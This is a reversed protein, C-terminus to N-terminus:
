WAIKKFVYPLVGGDFYYQMEMRNVIRAVVSFTLESTSSMARVTLNAGPKLGKLGEISYEEDGKLGLSKAGKGGAFELPLIGMAVLNSRHIREFSEAIVARVGLLRPAKAAWDRSSGAGYVKGAIVILPIRKKIYQIAADYIPMIEGTPLFTTYGGERGKALLNTLRINSFGGRVMVEHNGRRAGYTSFHIMDVGRQQLYLAAPSDVSITGAPSIHDTTVKDELYALVRAGRVDELKGGEPNEFWPPERIYTSSDDWTYTEGPSAPLSNWKEDGVLADAYRREYLKPSISKEVTQKIEKLSPWIDKLYFDRGDPGKGLPQNYFDFDMRGALAYAVVLMPSTLFSGKALPHIRGDFNRNGSLVAVVYSDKEKIEREIEPALPGSNGICNHVAITGAIFAHLENVSLDYVLRRGAPHRDVVQLSFTPLTTSEKEACYRKIRETGAGSRLPAFWGRVGLEKFLKVPSPFDCSDRHLPQFRRDTARPLRSFRDHGELLAYHPSVVPPMSGEAGHNLLSVAVLQRAQSFSLMPQDQNLEELRAAMWLRQEQIGEVLRWYVAAASARMTKDVCYRFGVREIFSLGNPLNLRVEIRPIGDRAAAYSSGRRRTPYEYVRAGETEVGCRTLLRILEHLLTRSQEIHAPITSQSYAPPELTSDDERKGWRHLIPAHGDAGFLGGLFERVVSVPCNEQCVFSPLTPPQEIREGVKVGPLATIAKTLAMPLVISWRREDYRNACPRLGTVLEIDSLVIERDVAQGVSMRGQGSVSISGDGLLHGLLRAFAVTRARDRQTDMSFTLDGAHLVYGSEDDGPKDLPGELGVVVRDKALTLEDARVWRGDSCLIRHDPTCILSRGDQLVLKVCDRVGMKMLESQRAIGLRGKATPGFVLAGGAAPLSEIPRTTGDASLVNTGQAICTTCGYGVLNFGLKDLYPLLKSGELYDKVVSSGPALSCKVHRKPLLGKLAANRALLGAGVMVTPNSTNTCSTIAAIVVAGDSILGSASQAVLQSGSVSMPTAVSGRSELPKAARARRREEILATAFAPLSRLSRREDPNRPGALSPEIKSLDLELVDSYKLEHHPDVFLGQQKCYRSVFDAHRSDRGTQLLYTITAEDVPSFGVTAGYEPSMNGLTARDPVSLRSYGDGFYEVFAEVVNRKRLLETVTLVIDTPTVGEQLEGTIRVGVVKPIQMHYPEGLMVAEAEIGGVGWGLVGLGNVM